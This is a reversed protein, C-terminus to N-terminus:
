KHLLDELIPIAGYRGALYGKQVAEEKRPKYDSLPYLHTGGNEDKQTFWIQDRRFLTLDLMTTDHTVCVLQAGLRNIGPRLFVEVLERALLPHLSTELEDVFMAMGSSIATLWPGILLFYRRTGDSEAELPLFTTKGNNTQHGMTVEIRGGMKAIVQKKLENPIDPPFFIKGEEVEKKKVQIDCIGLDANKLITAISHKAIEDKQMKRYQLMMEATLPKVKEGARIIRLKDKFWEYDVRLQEHNWQFGVSLFLADL